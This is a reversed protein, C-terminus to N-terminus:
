QLHNLILTKLEMVNKLKDMGPRFTIKAKEYQVRRAEYRNKLIEEAGDGANIVLPRDSDHSIRKWLIQWAVDLFISLGKANIIDMHRPDEVVGGGSAIVAPGNDIVSVLAEHEKVRFWAEGQSAFIEPIPKGAKQEIVRDLDVFKLKLERALMMGLRSKGSGMFGILVVPQELVLIQNTLHLSLYRNRNLM